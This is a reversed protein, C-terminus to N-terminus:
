KWEFTEIMVIIDEKIFRIVPALSDKNPEVNFYLAGRVYHSISDTIFFQVSSAANGDIEYLIGFVRKDPKIFVQEHIADAKISHKYALKRSDELIQGINNNVDKYSIHLRGGIRNFDMNIWCPEANKSSDINISAYTPYDFSYPCDSHFKQYDKEPLDIRFYGRPKPTYNKKCSILGIFLTILVIVILYQLFSKKHM